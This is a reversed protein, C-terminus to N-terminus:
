LEVSFSPPRRAPVCAKLDPDCTVAFDPNITSGEGCSTAPDTSGPSCGVAPWMGWVEYEATCGDRTYTLNGRLQTGPASPSAYVEINKYAYTVTAAPYTAVPEGASNVVQAAEITQVSLNGAACFGEADPEDAFTESLSTALQPALNEGAPNKRPVTSDAAAGPQRFTAAMLNAAGRPRLALKAATGAARQADTATPDVYKWVGISEGKLTSCAGTGSVLTYKGIWNAFSSDQVICGASPQTGCGSLLGATGLVALVMSIRKTM